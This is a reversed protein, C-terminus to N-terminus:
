APDSLGRYDRCASCTLDEGEERMRDRGCHPCVTPFARVLEGTYESLMWLKGRYAKLGYYCLNIKVPVPQAGPRSVQWITWYGSVSGSGESGIIPLRSAFRYSKSSM